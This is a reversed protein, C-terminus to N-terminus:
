RRQRAMSRIYENLLAQASGPILGFRQDFEKLANMDNPRALLAAVDQKTPQLLKELAADEAGPNQQGGQLYQQLGAEPSLQAGGAQTPAPGYKTWPGAPAASAGGAVAGGGLAAEPRRLGFDEPSGHGRITISTSNWIEKALRDLKSLVTARSDGIQPEYRSIYRQAEEAPMGAGTLARLLADAGTKIRRQLDGTQGYGILGSVVGGTVDSLGGGAVEARIANYDNLFSQAMGLRAGSEAGVSERPGGPIPEMIPRGSNDFVPAGNQMKVRYGDPPKGFKAEEMIKQTEANMKAIKAMTEPGTGKRNLERTEAEIKAIKAMTEPGTGERNLRRTEAELKALRAKAEPGTSRSIEALLKARGLAGQQRMLDIKAQDMTADRGQKQLNQLTQLGMLGGKGVDGTSMMGFGAARLAMRENDTLNMFNLNTGLLRSLFGPSGRQGAPAPAATSPPSPLPQPRNEAARPSERYDAPASWGPEMMAAEEARRKVLGPLTKGGAKVYKAMQTRVGTWDGANIMPLLDALRGTGLNYGFSTLADRQGQTLPVKVAGSIWDDVRGIEMRLRADADERSISREGPAARTGYGISTQAGDGYPTASFGEKKKIFDIINDNMATPEVTTQFPDVRFTKVVNQPVGPPAPPPAPESIQPQALPSPSIFPAAIIGEVPLPGPAPAASPSFFPEALEPARPPPPAPPAPLAIPQAGGAYRLNLLDGISAAGPAGPTAGQALSAGAMSSAGAGSYAPVPGQPQMDTPLVGEPFFADFPYQVGGGDAFGLGSLGKMINDFGGRASRGLQGWQKLSALEQGAQQQQGGGSAQPLQPVIPQSAQIQMSPFALALEDDPFLQRMPYPSGVGGGDAFFSLGALAPGLYQGVGTQKQTSSSTGSTTGGMLPGISGYLSSLYQLNQYPWMVEQQANKTAADLENQAQQQQAAGAGYLAQAGELGLSQQMQGLGAMQQGVGMSRLADAQAAALARDYGGARLDALTQGTALGQKRALEAQAAKVMGGGLAGQTIANGVVNRQDLRQQEALNAMTANVVDETYPNMYGQIAEQSIPGGAAETYGRAADIYPQYGGQLEGIQQFAQQQQPALGAVNYGTAPNYGQSTLEQAQPFLSKYAGYAVADPRYTSTSATTQKTSGGM